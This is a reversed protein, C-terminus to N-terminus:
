QHVITGLKAGQVIKLLHNPQCIDFVIIPLNNEACLAFATLDMVRLRQQYAEQFTIQPLRQASPHTKPDATYIGDVSTAKLLVQANIELARVSAASDTTFFPSGLGGVFILVKGQALQNLAQRQSYPECISAIPWSSMVCSPVNLQELASHLALGNIITALMGMHDGQVRSIGMKQAQEGGRYINGGGIVIGMEVDLTHVKQIEEAYFTLQQPSISATQTGLLAEGSLKLLIRQYSM